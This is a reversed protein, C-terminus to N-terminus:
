RSPSPCLKWPSRVMAGWFDAGSVGRGGDGWEHEQFAHRVPPREGRPGPTSTAVVVVLRRGTTPQVRVPPIMGFPWAAM